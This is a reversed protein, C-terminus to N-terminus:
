QRWDWPPVFDGAWMGQGAGRAADEQPVYDESYRRYALALGKSVMAANLNVGGAFCEAVLRGYRDKDRGECHVTQRGIMKALANAAAQGCRWRKGGKRCSQGSEPADIGHLQVRQGHIDITDGDIVSAQGTVDDAASAPFVSIFAAVFLVLLMTM